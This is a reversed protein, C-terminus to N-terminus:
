AEAQMRGCQHSLCVSEDRRRQDQLELLDRSRAAGMDNEHLGIEAVRRGDREVRFESRAFVDQVEIDPYSRV